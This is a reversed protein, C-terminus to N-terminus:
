RTMNTQSSNVIGVLVCEDEVSRAAGVLLTVENIAYSGVFVLGLFLQTAEELLAHTANEVFQEWASRCGVEHLVQTSYGADILLHALKLVGEIHLRTDELNEVLLITLLVGVGDFGEVSATPKIVLEAIVILSELLELLRVLVGLFDITVGHPNM